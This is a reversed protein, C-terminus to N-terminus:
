QGGCASRIKGIAESSGKLSFKFYTKGQGFWNLELLLTNSESIRAIAVSDDNFHIFKSSWDQKLTVNEIEDNWKIRTKILNYGDKTITNTINPSDTFGVYVWEGKGNTGIGLWAKTDGYPFGMKETPGTISSNAYCSKKETMEDKSSSITWEALAPTALWLIFTSACAIKWIHKKFM